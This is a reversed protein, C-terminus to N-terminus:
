HAAEYATVVEAPIRGRGSVRVDRSKAWERIHQNQAPDRRTNGASSRNSRNGRGNSRRASGIYPALAGRLKDANQRTLDIDYTTGDLSFRVSEGAGDALETGDLDDVLQTVLRQVM